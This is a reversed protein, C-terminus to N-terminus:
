RPAPIDRWNRFVGKCWVVHTPRVRAHPVHVVSESQLHCANGRTRRRDAQDSAVSVLTCQLFLSINCNTSHVLEDMTQGYLYNM